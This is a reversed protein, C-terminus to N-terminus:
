DTLVLILTLKMAEIRPSSEQAPPDGISTFSVM